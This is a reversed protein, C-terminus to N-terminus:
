AFFCMIHYCMYLVCSLINIVHHLNVTWYSLGVAWSKNLLRNGWLRGVYLLCTTLGRCWVGCPYDTAFSLIGM